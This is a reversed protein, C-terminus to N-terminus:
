NLLLVYIYQFTLFKYGFPKIKALNILMLLEFNHSLWTLFRWVPFAIEELLKLKVIMQLFVAKIQFVCFIYCSFCLVWSVLIALKTTLRCMESGRELSYCINIDSEM